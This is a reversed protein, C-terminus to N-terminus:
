TLDINNAIYYHYQKSECYSSIENILSKDITYELFFVEKGKEKMISAIEQYYEKDEKTQKEFKNLSYDTILSFVEEQHYAWISNFILDEQDNMDDLFESGGNVMVKLGLDSVGKIINKIGNAYATYDLNEEKAITYVDLNDMYVGYANEDKFGKALTNIVFDQWSPNSVDIWREDPWEDYNKFTLSEFEDYYDRYNELSGINLYALFKTGHETLRNINSSGFENLEVSVYNYKNFDTVDNDSRGLFAGYDQYPYKEGDINNDKKNNCSCLM